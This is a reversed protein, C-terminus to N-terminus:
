QTLLGRPHSDLEALGLERESANNDFPVAPDTAFRLYDAHRERLRLFLAHHKAVL